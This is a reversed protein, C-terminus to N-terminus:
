SNLLRREIKETNSFKLNLKYGKKKKKKKKKLSKINSSNIALIPLGRREIDEISKITSDLFEILLIFAIGSLFGIFIYCFYYNDKNPSVKKLILWLQIM